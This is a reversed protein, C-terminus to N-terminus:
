NMWILFILISAFIQQIECRQAAEKSPPCLVMRVYLFFWCLFGCVELWKARHHFMILIVSKRDVQRRYVFIFVIYCIIIMIVSFFSIQVLKTIHIFYSRVFPVFWVMSIQQNDSPRDETNTTKSRLSFICIIIISFQVEPNSSKYNCGTPYQEFDVHSPYFQFIINVNLSGNISM